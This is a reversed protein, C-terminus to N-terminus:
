CRGGEEGCGTWCIATLLSCFRQVGVRKGFLRWFEIPSKRIQHGFRPCCRAFRVRM